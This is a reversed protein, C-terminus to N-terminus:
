EVWDPFNDKWNLSAEYAEKIKLLDDEVYWISVEGRLPHRARLSYLINRGSSDEFYGCQMKAEDVWEIINDIYEIRVSPDPDDNIYAYYTEYGVKVESFSSFCKLLIYIV